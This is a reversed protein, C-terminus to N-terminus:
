ASAAINTADAPAPAVEAVFPAEQAGNPAPPLAPGSTTAAAHDAVVKPLARRVVQSILGTTGLATGIGDIRVTIM